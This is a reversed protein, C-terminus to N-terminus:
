LQMFMIKHDDYIFPHGTYIVDDYLLNVRKESIVKGEFIIDECDLGGYVVIKYESFNDQFQQIEHVGGGNELNIGMTQLLHQVEPRIRRGDHYSRYNPDKTLQAIAIILAHALCNSEAKVNIISHKVHAMVSLPRGKSKVATKGFSVPMKVSHIVVILRDMANYRANSQAVKSFVSWIVEKWYNIREDSVSVM